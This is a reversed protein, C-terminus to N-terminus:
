PERGARHLDSEADIKRLDKLTKPAGHRGLDPLDGDAAPKDFFRAKLFQLMTAIALVIFAIGMFGFIEARRFGSEIAIFILVAGLLFSFIGLLFHSSKDHEEVVIPAINKDEERLQAAKKSFNYGDKDEYKNAFPWFM